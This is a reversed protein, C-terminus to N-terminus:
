LNEAPQEFMQKKEEKPKIGFNYRFTIGIRRTDGLRTGSANVNGQQLSFTTRNTLFIDNFAVIINAKKKLISKNFSINAAGFTNLEYFNQLGKTRMFGNITMNLTSLLKIQHYMFFVWSKRSYNLPAGQYFGDYSNINMQAGAYFFYKGGPPIGGVARLYVEKNTGLNDYTRYAIGTVEDQYTVNSFINKTKNVGVSFITFDDATINFEYNSTFQPQLNPNGVDFLYQDVYKPYPNLIEYYPRSISRRLVINGNLEFGFLKMIKHRLYLYPFLDTRKILLSTDSPIIQQGDINTAELRIGPKIIFGFVKKSLQLYSSTIAENYKFTNTQFSDIKTESAGEQLFYNASNNSGSITTKFGTELTIDHKFKYTFDTQFTFINKNNKNKGNGFLTPESPQYYYNNYAQENNYTYRNYDIQATWESGASDIKYKSFINNGWYVSNNDNSISSANSGTFQNVSNLINIDNRANSNNNNTSIRLDYAINFKKTLTIDTGLGIYHNIAPYTTRSKQSLSSASTKLLRTSNIEEFNNRDTYQYSFYSTVKNGGKNINFGASKTSYQGQFYSMNMSGNAGIRVGKKLVINVIGGSSAADYKASPNRLIEIKSISGAPLSKLLSALDAASLKVERGNIQIAAPTMSSLYVNGDQDVIAGPTKELVEYANSSTVALADADIIQKDDEQRMLPKRSVLVVEDLGKIKKKLPVAVAIPKDTVAIIKETAAFGASSIKLLYKSFNNVAFSNGDAKAVQTTVLITDPLSFLQMTAPPFSDTKNVSIQVRINVKQAILAADFAILILLTTFFYKM